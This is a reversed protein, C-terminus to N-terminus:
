SRLFNFTEKNNIKACRSSAQVGVNGVGFSLVKALQFSLLVATSIHKQTSSENLDTRVGGGAGGHLFSASKKSVGGGGVPM